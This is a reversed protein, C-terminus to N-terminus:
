LLKHSACCRSNFHISYKRGRGNRNLPSCCKNHHSHCKSPPLYYMENQRVEEEPQDLIQQVECQLTSRRRHEGLNSRQRDKTAFLGAITAKLVCYVPLTPAPQILICCLTPPTFPYFHLISDQMSYRQTQNSDLSTYTFTIQPLVNCCARTFLLAVIKLM